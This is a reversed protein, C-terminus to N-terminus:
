PRWRQDLFGVMSLSVLNEKEQEELERMIGVTSEENFVLLVEGSEDCVKELSESPGNTM